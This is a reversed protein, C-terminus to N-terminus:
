LALSFENEVLLRETNTVDIFGRELFPAVLWTSKGDFYIEKYVEDSENENEDALTYTEFQIDSDDTLVGEQKGEFVQKVKFISNPQALLARRTTADLYYIINKEDFQALDIQKILDIQKVAKMLLLKKCYSIAITQTLHCTLGNEELRKQYAQAELLTKFYYDTAPRFVNNGGKNFAKLAYLNIVPTTKM